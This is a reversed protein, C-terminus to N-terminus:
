RPGVSFTNLTKQMASQDREFWREPRFVEV